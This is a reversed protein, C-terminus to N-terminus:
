ESLYGKSKAPLYLQTLHFKRRERKEKERRKKLPVQPPPIM